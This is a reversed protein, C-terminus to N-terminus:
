ASSVRMVWAWPMHCRKTSAPPARMVDRDQTVHQLRLPLVVPLPGASGVTDKGEAANLLGRGAPITADIDSGALALKSAVRRARHLSPVPSGASRPPTEKRSERRGLFSTTARRPSVRGIM